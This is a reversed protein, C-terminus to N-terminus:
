QKRIMYGLGINFSVFVASQKNGPGNSLTYSDIKWDGASANIYYGLRLGVPISRQIQFCDMQKTKMKILYDFGAGLEIGFNPQYLTKSSTSNLLEQSFDNVNEQRAKDQINLVAGSLNIGAFPYLRFDANKSIDYGARFYVQYQNYRAKINNVESTSLPTFGIGDEFLWKQHIHSMSANIWISNESLSPFGNKNLAANLQNLNSKRYTVQIQAAGAVNHKFWSNSKVSDTSQAKAALVGALAISLTFILKKM